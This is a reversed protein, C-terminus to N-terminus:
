IDYKLVEILYKIIYLQTSNYLSNRNYSIFLRNTNNSERKCNINLITQKYVLKIDTLITKCSDISSLWLFSELKTKYICHFIISHIINLNIFDNSYKIYITINNKRIIM